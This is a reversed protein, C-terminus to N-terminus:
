TVPVLLQVEDHRRYYELGPRSPDRECAAEFAEFAPAIRDYLEPPEGRLRTRAYSGGPIVGVDLGGSDEGARHEVAAWYRGSPWVVGVFRRGRLPVVEELRAWARRIEPVTDRAAVYLVQTDERSVVVPTLM